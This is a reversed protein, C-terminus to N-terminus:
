MLKGVEAQNKGKQDNDSKTVRRDNTEVLERMRGQWFAFERRPVQVFQYPDPELSTSRPLKIAFPLHCLDISESIVNLAMFM